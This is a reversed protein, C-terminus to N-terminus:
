SRVNVGHQLSQHGKKSLFFGLEFHHSLLWYFTSGYNLSLEIPIGMIDFKWSVGFLAHSTKM